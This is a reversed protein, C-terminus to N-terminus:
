QGLDKRMLIEIGFGQKAFPAAGIVVRTIYSQRIWAMVKEGYLPDQGFPGVGFETTDRDILMVYDPRGDQFSKLITDEGYALVETIIFTYPSPRVRRSLYNLITGEPLTLLTADKAANEELWQLAAQTAPGKTSTEANYTVIADQGRGVVVDKQQYFHLSLLGLSMTMSVLAIYAAGQFIWNIEGKKLRPLYWLLTAWVLLTAPMGLYFGYHHIRANLIMKALMFFSFFSWVTFLFSQASLANTRRLRLCWCLGVSALVGVLLPLASSFHVWPTVNPFSYFILASALLVTAGVIRRNKESVINKKNIFAGLSWISLCATVIVLSCQLIIILNETPHNLGMSEQFFVNQSVSPFLVVALIGNFTAIFAESAPLHLCYYCFFGLPLLLCGLILWIVNRTYDSSSYRGSLYTITLGVGLAALTAMSIEGSTLLSVGACVGIAIWVLPGNVGSFVREMLYIMILSALLGHLIETKYPAIFNFNGTPVYQAFGFLLLFILALICGTARDCAKSFIKYIFFSCTIFLIFNFLIIATLSVGFLKFIAANVMPSFPGYYYTLDKFLVKGESIQWFNYLYYGTDILVDPWM